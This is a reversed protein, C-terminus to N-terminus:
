VTIVNREEMLKLVINNAEDYDLNEMRLKTDLLKNQYILNVKYFGDVESHEYIYSLVRDIDEPILGQVDFTINDGLEWVYTPNTFVTSLLEEPAPDDNRFIDFDEEEEETEFIVEGNADFQVITELQNNFADKDALPKDEVSVNFVFATEKDSKSLLEEIYLRTAETISEEHTLDKGKLEKSYVDLLSHTLSPHRVKQGVIIYDTGYKTILDAMYDKLQADRFSKLLDRYNDIRYKIRNSEVYNFVAEKLHEETYEQVYDGYMFSLSCQKYYRAVLSKSSENTEKNLELRVDEPVNLKFYSHKFISKKTNNYDVIIKDRFPIPMAVSDDSHDAWSTMRAPQVFFPPADDVPTEMCKTIMEVIEECPISQHASIIAEDHISLMVRVKPYGDVVETWGKERIYNYMQVEALKMYDAATGQVPVNNAMRLISARRAPELNPDFIENFLRKRNYWATKMYGYKQVKLANEKIYRDIRKFHKYFDDLQQQCFEVNEQTYGPGFIQAALGMASILYVVGFNRRKGTSREKSTIAWMEKGSILSGIIRHIDNDPDKALEILETEGALYAIMRLEIQSFDPGWFDHDETDALIVEKLAPPLQHMPSSQRGTAAGNQNVWFFVRGTKMTREFRAYFATKLKNYERYKSLIVLAPYMSESLDKAKVIVNGYLDTIDETIAHPNKTRVSALKKIAASSTSPQGKRTRLLVKCKMKNYLLNSLVAPSNVNGDEHTLIRFAELLREIIYNCNKYQREYKKVDVRIGYFEQDAKLDALDCELFALQYQYKPLLTLFHRLLTIVSTADSCAYYKIIEVPLVSFDIDKKNIFINELELYQKGNLEMMLTKLAHAGKMIVPNLVISIQMTDWKIRLDYGEKLMVERDFKKNHAVLKDQFQLLTDMLEKLCEMPLNFDGTHRFPFYTATNEDHGLIIGVMYDEGYMTVDTGTTETDFGRFVCPNERFEKLRKRFTPVDTAVVFDMNDIHAIDYKRKLYDISHFLSNNEEAIVGEDLTSAVYESFNMPELKIGYIPDAVMSYIYFDVGTFTSESLTGNRHVTEMTMSDKTSTSKHKVIFENDEWYSDTVTVMKTNAVKEKLELYDTYIKSDGITYTKKRHVQSYVVADLDTQFNASGRVFDIRYFGPETIEYFTYMEGRLKFIGNVLM